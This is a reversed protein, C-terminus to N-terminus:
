FRLNFPYVKNKLPLFFQRSFFIVLSSRNGEMTIERKEQLFFLLASSDMLSLKFIITNFVKGLRMNYFDTVSNESLSLNV